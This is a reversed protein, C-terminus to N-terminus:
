PENGCECTEAVQGQGSGCRDLGHCGIGDMEINAEWISRSKILPRKGEPKGVLVIHVGRSEGYTSCAGGV